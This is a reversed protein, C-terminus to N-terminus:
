KHLLKKVQTVFTEPLLKRLLWGLSHRMTSKIEVLLTRLKLQLYRGITGGECVDDCCLEVMYLYLFRKTNQTAFHLIPKDNKVGNVFLEGAPTVHLQGWYSPVFVIQMPKDCPSSQHIALSMALVPEDAPKDFNRFSFQNYQEALEIAKEFIAKSRNSKRIFYIGGHLDILFKISEKYKGCGEYTFWARNSDLPYKCGYCSVDDADAFDEWIGSPDSLVLSDADIFISEDYPTYRYLLLKDMYSCNPQEMLVVEDFEQVDNNIRDCIIAFPTDDMAIKRYSHLLNIALKYYKDSGTAITVFGRTAM